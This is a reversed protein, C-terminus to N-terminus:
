GKVNRSSVGGQRWSKAIEEKAVTRMREQMNRQFLETDLEDGESKGSEEDTMVMIPMSLSVSTGGGGGVSMVGLKGNATRTLPMIAEDGAEGMVGTRGNAMGFATPKSVVSNTFAGGDAFMQVGKSWAGGEAQLYTSSYGAQSAGLNSSVAGASGAALGNGTGAAASGGFYTATASVLSSLLASSAQRTAIRAMDALISKAFDSFSAKGTMAFNVVADEMSSFANGFLSKTQGAINRASDLYNEWAASAGKTWDGQAAEVDAYNQRIQDTANKNADALAQSKRKFEEESMNRSPDSKQNALELAQQAFRDQQSNLEGNLANQRDGQGVGVVARQGALELARQQQGLAQVYSAISREQKALRGTESTALVELQSDADKQAKVMDARADAIKQDLQISQASTTTKKGQAAELASIEVEYGATVEDKEARILVARQTAYDAQSILGAKQAADLQRFTNTYEDQIGKLANQADNYATLDVAGASATKPDKFKANINERQKNVRDQALRPDNPDADRFSQLERDLEKLEADRKQKNTRFSKERADFARQSEQAKDQKGQYLAQAKNIADQTDRQGVLFELEQKSAALKKKVDTDSPNAKLASEAYAVSQTLETIRKAPGEDRGINKIADLSKKAEDTIGKWAKEIFGLNDTIETSRSKVTDAYTDTLLKAAGITDGQEKLAVIQSYVSATLFHYQDNLEKAAAVPDKAIKVFEAITADVSKGTADEMAAAADAIVKFSDGAIVGSSALKTLSAAAESTTGNTASVQQALDALRSASTGAYNGTLILAKNYEDAEQSGTKYGYVMTGLSVVVAALALAMGAAGFTVGSMAPRIAGVAKQANEAAEAATNSSEALDSLSESAEGASEATDKAGSAIGALSEGLVAAGAGGSFLSRFKDRLADMTPGIGGFSDKIQGGQQILVMLPNQGGALSTFIDTFQAPLQRLAAQTQGSSVGTKRLGEDFEGLKQRSADIRASYERFTDADIVGAAKYKQLQAQQQDLKDLAAMTPNLKGLLEQLGEAQAGTAAAAKKTAEAQRDTSGILADSEAQLRRQLAALSSASSGSSELASANTNVSTTLRQYYESSELSAKATALLRAKTEDLSESLKRESASLDSAATAAKDFGAAVGDAAKEAKAGAKALNELDSTAKVAEGSDVAIGLEAITSM